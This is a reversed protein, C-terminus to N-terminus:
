QAPDKQLEGPSNTDQVPQEAQADVGQMREDLVTKEAATLEDFKKIDNFDNDIVILRLNENLTYKGLLYQLNALTAFYSPEDSAAQASPSLRIVLQNNEKSAILMGDSYAFVGEQEFKAAINEAEKKTVGKRYFVFHNEGAKVKNMEELTILDKFKDDTLIIKTKKGDFVNESILDQWYWFITEYKEREKNVVDEKIVLRVV